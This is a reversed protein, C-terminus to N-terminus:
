RPLPHPLENVQPQRQTRLQQPSTGFHSKFARSFASLSGFGLSDSVRSVTEDPRSLLRRALDLQITRFVEAPPPRGAASFARRLQSASIGSLEAIQEVSPNQHICRRYFALAQEVRHAALRKEMDTPCPNASKLDRWLERLFVAGSALVDRRGHLPDVFHPFIWEFLTRLRLLDTESLTFAGAPSKVSHSFLRPDLHIVLVESLDGEPATWGHFHAPPFIYLAPVPRKSINNEGSVCANGRVICQFEWFSRSYAKVPFLDYRRLGCSMYPITM